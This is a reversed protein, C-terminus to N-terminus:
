DIRIGLQNAIQQGSEHTLKMLKNGSADLALVGAPEQRLAAIKAFPGDLKIETEVFGVASIDHATGPAYEYGKDMKKYVKDEFYSLNKHTAQGASGIKGWRIEVGGSGNGSAQWYKSSRGSKNDWNSGVFELRVLWPKGQRRMQNAVRISMPKPASQM